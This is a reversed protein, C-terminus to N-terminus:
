FELSNDAKGLKYDVITEEKDPPMCSLLLRITDLLQNLEVAMTKDVATESQDSNQYELAEMLLMEAKHLNGNRQSILALNKLVPAFDYDTDHKEEYYQYIEEVMSYFNEAGEYDGKRFGVNGLGTYVTRLDNIYKADEADSPKPILYYNMDIAEKAATYYEEATSLIAEVEEEEKKCSEAIAAITLMLAISQSSAEGYQLSAIKLKKHYSELEDFSPLAAGLRTGLKHSVLLFSRVCHVTVATFVFVTFM